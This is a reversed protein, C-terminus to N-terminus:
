AGCDAGPHQWLQHHIIQWFADITERGTFTLHLLGQAQWGDQQFESLTLYFTEKDIANAHFFTHPPTFTIPLNQAWSVPLLCIEGQRNLLLMTVEGTDDPTLNLISPRAGRWHYIPVATIPHQEAKM